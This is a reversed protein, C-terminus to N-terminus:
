KQTFVVKGRAFSVFICCLCIGSFILLATRISEVFETYYEPTIQATGMNLSFLLMLISMGFTMGINRTTSDMASAVGYYKKEVSGMIANINPPSFFAFSLGVLILSIIILLMSTNETAVFLLLLGALAIIVSVSAINRPQIKDSIRGALPSFIAQMAPQALLIVGANQPSLGKIYQLYLSLIFSVSFLASYFMFQALNSLAFLRNRTLLHINLLPSKNKMEWIVFAALALIGILISVIGQVTPLSSFGYMIAFLMISFLISGTIDFNEGKAERWESHVKKLLLVLAPIQIVLALLFVSRWGFNQTLIGGITPGISLGVYIAALNIGLVKGRETHSYASTLLAVGTSYMLAMGLGQVVRLIIMMLFSNSFTLILTSMTGIILGVAFTKKRGLIDAMRGFPLVFIASALAFSQAIWGLQVANMSLDNGIAPLAINVASLMLSGSFSTLVAVTLIYHKDQTAAM